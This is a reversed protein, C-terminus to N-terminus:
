LERGCHPCFKEGEPREDPPEGDPASRHHTARRTLDEERPPKGAWAWDSVWGSPPAEVSEDPTSASVGALSLLLSGLDRAQEPSLFLGDEGTNAQWVRVEDRRKMEVVVLHPYKPLTPSITHRSKFHEAQEETLNHKLIRIERM